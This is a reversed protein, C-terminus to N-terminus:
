FQKIQNKLIKGNFIKILTNRAKQFIYGLFQTLSIEINFSSKKTYYKILRGRHKNNGTEAEIDQDVQYTLTDGTNLNVDTLRNSQSPTSQNITLYLSVSVVAGLLLFVTLAAIVIVKTKRTSKKLKEDSFEEKSDPEKEAAM